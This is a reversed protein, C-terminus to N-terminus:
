FAINGNVFTLLFLIYKLFGKSSNETLETTLAKLDSTACFARCGSVPVCFCNARLTEACVLIKMLGSWLEVCFQLEGNANIWGKIMRTNGGSKEHHCNAMCIGVLSHSCIFILGNQRRQGLYCM